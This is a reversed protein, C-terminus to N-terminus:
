WIYLMRNGLLEVFGFFLRLFFFLGLFQIVPPVGNRLMPILGGWRVALVLSWDKSLRARHLFFGDVFFLGVGDM